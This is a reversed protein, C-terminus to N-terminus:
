DREAAFGSMETTGAPVASPLKKLSALSIDCKLKIIVASPLPGKGWHFSTGM